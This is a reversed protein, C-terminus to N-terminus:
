LGAKTAAGILMALAVKVKIDEDSNNNAGAFDNALRTLSKAWLMRAEAQEGPSTM